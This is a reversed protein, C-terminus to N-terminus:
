EPAASGLSRLVELVAASRKQMLENIVLTVRQALRASARGMISEAGQGAIRPVNALGTKILCRQIVSVFLPLNKVIVDDASLLSFAAVATLAEKM